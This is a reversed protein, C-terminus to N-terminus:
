CICAGGPALQGQLELEEVLVQAADLAKKGMMKSKLEWTFEKGYKALIQPPQPKTLQQWRM